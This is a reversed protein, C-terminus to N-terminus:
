STYLVDVYDYRQLSDPGAGTAALDLANTQPKEGESIIPEFGALLM